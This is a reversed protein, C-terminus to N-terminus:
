NLNVVDNEVGIDDDEEDEWNEEKKQPGDYRYIFALIIGALAGLFHTEYSILSDKTLPFIGWILDGYLFVVVLALAMLETRKRLIGSFFVFATFAYVLGSAGIHYTERGGFWAWIGSFLYSLFFVKYALTRYFYFIGWSLVFLPITNSILHLYDKHILPSFIIGKLGSIHLPYIGWRYFQYNGTNQVIHIIWILIIFFTPFILSYKLRLKNNM